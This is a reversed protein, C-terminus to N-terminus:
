TQRSGVVGRHFGAAEASAADRFCLDPKVQDYGPDGPLYYRHSRRKAKVPYGEPCAGGVPSSSDQRPDEPAEIGNPSRPPPVDQVVGDGPLTAPEAEREDDERPQAKPVPLWPERLAGASRNRVLAMLARLGFYAAGVWAALRVLRGLPSKSRSKAKLAEEPSAEAPAM